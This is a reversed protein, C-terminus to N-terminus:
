LFSATQKQLLLLEIINQFCMYLKDITLGRDNISTARQYACFASSLVTSLQLVIQQYLLTYNAYNYSSPPPPCPPPCPLPAPPAPGWIIQSPTGVYGKVGGIIWGCKGEIEIHFLFFDCIYWTSPYFLLLHLKFKIQLYAVTM